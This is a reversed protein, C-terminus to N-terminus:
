SGYKEELMERNKYWWANYEEELKWDDDPFAYSQMKAKLKVNKTYMKLFVDEKTKEEWKETDYKKGRWDSDELLQVNCKFM